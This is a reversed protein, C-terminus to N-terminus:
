RISQRETPTYKLSARDCVRRSSNRMFIVAIGLHSRTNVEEDESSTFASSPQLSGGEIAAGLNGDLVLKRGGLPGITVAPVFRVLNLYLTRRGQVRQRDCRYM